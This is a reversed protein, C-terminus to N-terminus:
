KLYRDRIRGVTGDNRLEDLATKFAELMKPDTSQHFAYVMHSKMLVYISELEEPDLGALKSHHRAIDDAYAIADLRDRYLMRVINDAAVKTHIAKSSLGLKRILQDGIDDRISGIRLAKMDIVSEVKLGRSKRALLSVQTPVVPGVLKFLKAREETFTMSFLATRPKNLATRYGRAWPYVELDSRATTVGLKEFIKLLIDVCIGKVQGDEEDRFNFPPYHETIWAMQELSKVVDEPAEAQVQSSPLSIGLLTGALLSIFFPTLRM